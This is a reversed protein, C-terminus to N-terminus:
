ANGSQPLNGTIIWGLNSDLLNINNHIAHGNIFKYYKDSGILLSIDTVVVTLRNDALSFDVSKLYNVAEQIGLICIKNPLNDVVIVNAKIIGTLTAMNIEVTDYIKSIGQSCFGDISLM